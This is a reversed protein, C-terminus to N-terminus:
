DHNVQLQLVVLLPHSLSLLLPSVFCGRPKPIKKLKKSIENVGNVSVGILNAKIKPIKDKKIQVNIINLVIKKNKDPSGSILEVDMKTAISNKPPM